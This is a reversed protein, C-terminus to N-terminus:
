KRPVNEHVILNVIDANTMREGSRWNQMMMPIDKTQYIMMRSTKKRMKMMLKPRKMSSSYDGAIRSANELAIRNYKTCKLEMWRVILGVDEDEEEDDDDEDEEDEGGEGDEAVAKEDNDDDGEADEVDSVGNANRDEDDSSVVRKRDESKTARKVPSRVDEDDDSEHAAPNFDEGESESDGFDQNLFSSM